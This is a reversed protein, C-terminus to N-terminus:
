ATWDFTEDDETVVSAAEMAQSSSPAARQSQPVRCHELLTPPRHHMAAKLLGPSTPYAIQCSIPGTIYTDRTAGPNSCSDELRPCYSRQNARVALRQVQSVQSKVLPGGEPVITSSVPFRLGYAIHPCLDCLLWDLLDILNYRSTTTDDPCLALGTQCLNPTTICDREVKLSPLHVKFFRPSTTRL